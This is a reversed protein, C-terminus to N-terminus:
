IGLWDAQTPEYYELLTVEVKIVRDHVRDYAYAIASASEDTYREFGELGEASEFDELAEEAVREAEM